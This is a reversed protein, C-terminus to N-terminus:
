RKTNRLAGMARGVAAKLEDFKANEREQEALDLRVVYVESFSNPRYGEVWAIADLLEKIAAEDPQSSLELASRSFSRWVPGYEPAERECAAALLAAAQGLQILLNVKEVKMKDVHSDM